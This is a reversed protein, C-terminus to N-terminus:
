FDLRCGRPRPAGFSRGYWRISPDFHIESLCKSRFCFLLMLFDVWVCVSKKNWFTCKNLFLTWSLQAAEKPAIQKELGTSCESRQVMPGSFSFRTWLLLLSRLHGMLLLLVLIRELSWEDGCVAKSWMQTEDKMFTYFDRFHRAPRERQLASLNRSPTETDCTIFLINLLFFCSVWCFCVYVCYIPTNKTCLRPNLRHSLPSHTCLGVQLHKLLTQSGENTQYCRFRESGESFRGCSGRWLCLSRLSSLVYARSEELPCSLDSTVQIEACVRSGSCRSYERTRVNRCTM